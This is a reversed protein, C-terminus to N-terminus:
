EGLRPKISNENKAFGEGTSKGDWAGVGMSCVVAAEKDPRCGLVYVPAMGVLAALTDGQARQLRRDWRVGSCSPLLAAFAPVPKERGITNEASRTVRVFGGVEYQVDRYCPTKGSWPTGYVLVRGDRIGVAPNDDNVLECGPVHKLWMSSHTSKGTGSKALFLYAKGDRAIVSAHFLLTQRDMSAFAFLMMLYNNICYERAWVNGSLWCRAEKFAKDCQMQAVTRHEKPEQITIQVMDDSEAYVCWCGECEFESMVEADALPEFRETVRLAFLVPVGTLESPRHTFVGYRPEMRALLEQDDTEVTLHLGAILCHMM